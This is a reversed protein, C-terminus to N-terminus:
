HKLTLTWHKRIIHRSYKMRHIANTYFHFDLMLVKLSNKFNNVFQVNHKLKKVANHM